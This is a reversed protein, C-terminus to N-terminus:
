SNITKTVFIIIVLCASWGSPTGKGYSWRIDRAPMLRRGVKVQMLKDSFAHRQAEKESDTLGTSAPLIQVTDKPQSATVTRQDIVVETNAKPRNVEGRLKKNETLVAGVVARVAPDLIKDLVAYVPNEGVKRVKRTAGGTDDAWAKLM